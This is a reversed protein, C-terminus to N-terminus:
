RGFNAASPCNWPDDANLGVVNLHRVVIGYAEFVGTRTYKVDRANCYEQVIESARRLHPRPMSPFLHHEIQYNLGGMYIDMGWGGRINRSTLVQRRLFDVKSDKPLQPMGIHNPAFSAGMYIGFVALQVGLFAFAVGVPLLTFLVALYGINRVLLLVIEISRNDVRGRSFV